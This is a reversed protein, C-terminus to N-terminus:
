KAHIYHFIYYYLLALRLFKLTEEGIFDRITIIRIGLISRPPEISAISVLKRELGHLIEM